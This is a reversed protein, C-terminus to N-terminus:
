IRRLYSLYVASAISQIFFVVMIFYFFDSQSLVGITRVLVVGVVIGGILTYYSVNKIKLLILTGREDKSEPKREFAIKYFESLIMGLALLTITIALLSEM